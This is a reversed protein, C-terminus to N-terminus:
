DCSEGAVRQLSRVQMEGDAIMGTLSVRQGVHTPLNLGNNAADVVWISKSSKRLFGSKWSRSKPADAGATEKLRFTGDEDELCGTVTAATSEQLVARAVPAAAPATASAVVHTTAVPAIVASRVAAPKSAAPESSALKSSAAMVRPRAARAKKAAPTATRTATLDVSATRQPQVKVADFGATESPQRAAVMVVVAAVSLVAIVVKGTRTVGTIRMSKQEPM